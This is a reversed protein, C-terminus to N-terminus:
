KVCWIRRSNSIRTSKWILGVSEPWMSSAGVGALEARMSREEVALLLVPELLEARVSDGRGFPEFPEAVLQGLAAFLTATLNAKLTAKREAIPRGDRNGGSGALSRM